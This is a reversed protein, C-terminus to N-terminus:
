SKPGFSALKYVIGRVTGLCLFKFLVFLINYNVGKLVSLQIETGM